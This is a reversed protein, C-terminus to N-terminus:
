SGLADVRRAPVPCSSEAHLWGPWARAQFRHLIKRVQERGLRDPRSWRGTSARLKQQAKEVASARGLGTSSPGLAGASHTREPRAEQARAGYPERGDARVREARQCDSPQQSRAAVRAVIQQERRSLVGVAAPLGVRLADDAADPRLWARQMHGGSPSILYSSAWKAPAIIAAVRVGLAGRDKLQLRTNWQWILERRSLTQERLGPAETPRVDRQALGALEYHRHAARVVNALLLPSSWSWPLGATLSAGVTRSPPGSCWV